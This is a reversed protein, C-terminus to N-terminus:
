KKLWDPNLFVHDADDVERERFSNADSPYGIAIAGFPILPSPIDLVSRIRDINDQNPAIGCWVTGLGLARAAILANETFASCDITWYESQTCVTPDGLVLLATPASVIPAFWTMVKAIRERVEQDELIAVRFSRAGHASPAAFAAKIVTDLDTRDIPKREFKRVSRRTMIDSITQNM